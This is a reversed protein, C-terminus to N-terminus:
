EGDLSIVKNCFSLSAKNHTIMVIMKGKKALWELKMLIEKESIDDIEGFPEDLLLLDFDHYLARALMFRQRQGGSINKGNETIITNIGDPYQNIMHDIGCLSLTQTLKDADYKDDDTLCINKLISDNIFFPQQKDYSIRSWYGKREISNTLSHNISITGNDQELFGLLLNIITTKGLGSRGSIGVFDGPTMEFSFNNLIQHQKYKFGVKNFKVSHITTSPSQAKDAYNEDVTLLDNLTFEYTKIQGASNLIKVIGPIIKYSAAIFVGIDLFGIGHTNVSWKNIAILIFFGLIAFVEILRSPLGQLTQQGAINDNLQKQYRYYRDTFFENKNYVNSEIFGSLSENLYQLTMQSTTKINVRINKLKKKIFFALLFVPPVLLLFLSFFLQTHYFLLGTVTFVILISQSIVQQVNTLIYNSFEIPQQSIKRISVSSDINIFKIYSDKLYHWINRKSLRSAVAYFFVNQSKSIRYGLWNKLSYLIFFIGILLLSNKDFLSLLPLRSAANNNTTYFNIVLLLFGLFAIDLIGIVLDLIIHTFLHVREKRTLISLISKIIHKL